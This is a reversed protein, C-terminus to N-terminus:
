LLASSDLFVDEDGAQVARHVRDLNRLTLRVYEPVDVLLKEFEAPLDFTGSPFGPPSIPISQRDIILQQNIGVHLPSPGRQELAAIYTRIDPEAYRVPDYDLAFRIPPGSSEGITNLSLGEGKQGVVALSLRMIVPTINRHKNANSLYSIALASLNAPIDVLGDSYDPQAQEIVRAFRHDLREVFKRLPERKGGSIKRHYDSELPFQVFVGKRDLGYHNWISDVAMDLCSRANTVIDGILFNVDEALEPRNSVDVVFEIHAKSSASEDITAKLPATRPLDILPGCLARVYGAQKEVWGLRKWSDHFISHQEESESLM